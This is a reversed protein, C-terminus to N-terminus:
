HEKQLLLMEWNLMFVVIEQLNKLNHNFLKLLYWLFKVAQILLLMFIIQKSQDGVPISDSYGTRLSADVDSKYSGVNKLGSSNNLWNVFNDYLEQYRIIQGPAIAM